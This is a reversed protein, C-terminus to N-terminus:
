LTFYFTAGREPASEAWVRGGHRRIIREVIALGVGTGEYTDASPLRQFVDFLKPAHRMDFGVGNDRVFWVQEGSKTDCGIEIRAPSKERSFKAANGILNVFVQRLLAPDARCAPLGGIVVECDSSGQPVGVEDLAEDVIARPSVNRFDSPRKGLRSLALLGDILGDMRRISVAIRELATRSMESLDAAAEEGLIEAYGNIARLPARLDHSV